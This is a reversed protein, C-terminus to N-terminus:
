LYTFLILLLCIIIDTGFCLIFLCLIFVFFRILVASNARNINTAFITWACFVILPDTESASLPSAIGPALTITTPELVPPAVSKSPLKENEVDLSKGNVIWILEIPKPVWVISNVEASWSIFTSSWSPCFKSSITIEAELLGWFTKSEGCDTDIIEDLSRSFEALM